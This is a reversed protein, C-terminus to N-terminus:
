DGDSDVYDVSINFSQLMDVKMLIVNKQLEDYAALMMTNNTTIQSYFNPDLVNIKDRSLDFQNNILESLDTGDKIQNLYDLYTKFSEGVASGNYHKGNFVDEVAKLAHLSLEKSYAGSYYAEVKEPYTSTTWVGAPYGIKNKRLATEYFAIYDNMLKNLSSNVTNGSSSVFESRFNPWDAVVPQTLADMRNVLDMLYNRYNEALPDTTYKALIDMDNEGIGYLLYDLAPFGVADHNNSHGLDYTGAIINADIEAVSTPFVNMQYGLQLEYAKGLDYMGVYQWTKYAEFWNSRLAELNVQNANEVFTSASTKLASIDNGFETYAPIIINDALNSLILSRDYGDGNSSSSGSDSDCGTFLLAVIALSFLYKM